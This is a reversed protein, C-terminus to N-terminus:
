FVVLGTEAEGFDGDLLWRLVLDPVKDVGTLVNGLRALGTNHHQVALMHDFGQDVEVALFEFGPLRNFAGMAHDQQVVEGRHLRGDLGAGLVCLGQGLAADVIHFFDHGRWQRDTVEVALVTQCLVFAQQLDDAVEIGIVAVVPRM